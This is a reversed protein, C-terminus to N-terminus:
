TEVGKLIPANEGEWQIQPQRHTRERGLPHIWVQLRKPIAGVDLVPVFLILSIVHTQIPLLYWVNQDSAVVEM